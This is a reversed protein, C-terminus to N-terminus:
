HRRVGPGRRLDPLGRARARPRLAAEGRLKTLRREVADSRKLAGSPNVVGGPCSTPSRRRSRVDADAYVAGTACWVAWRPQLWPRAPPRLLQRGGLAVVLLAAASGAAYRSRSARGECGHRREGHDGRRPDPGRVARLRLRARRRGRPGEPVRGRANAPRPPRRGSLAAEVRAAAAPVLLLLGFRAALLVALTRLTGRRSRRRALLESSGPWRSLSADPALGIVVGLPRRRGGSAGAALVAPLIPLVCPSM